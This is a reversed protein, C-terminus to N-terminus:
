GNKIFKEVKLEVDNKVEISEDDYEVTKAIVFTGKLIFYMETIYEENEM